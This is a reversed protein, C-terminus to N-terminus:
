AIISKMKSCRINVITKELNFSQLKMQDIITRNVITLIVVYPIVAFIRSDSHIDKTHAILLLLTMAGTFPLAIFRARAMSWEDARKALANEAVYVWRADVSPIIVKGLTWEVIIAVAFHDLLTTRENTM